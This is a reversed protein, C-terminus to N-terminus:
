AQAEDARPAEACKNLDAVLSDVDLEHMLACDEVTSMRAIACEHCKLGVGSLVEFAGPCVAFVENFTMDKTIRAPTM